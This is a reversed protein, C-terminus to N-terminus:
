RWNAIVVSRREATLAGSVTLSGSVDPANGSAGAATTATSGNILSDFNETLASFTRANASGASDGYIAVAVGWRRNDLLCSLASANGGPVTGTAQGGPTSSLYRTVHWVAIKGRLPTNAASVSVSKSGGSTIVLQYLAVVLTGGDPSLQIANGINTASVGDVTVTPLATAPTFETVVGIVMIGSGPLSFSGSGPNVAGYDSHGIFSVLTRPPKPAKLRMALM